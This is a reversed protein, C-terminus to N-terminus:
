QGGLPRRQARPSPPPPAARARIAARGGLRSRRRDPARGSYPPLPPRNPSCRLSLGRTPPEIGDRPVMRRYHWGPKQCLRAPGATHCDVIGGLRALTGVLLDLVTSSAASSIRM